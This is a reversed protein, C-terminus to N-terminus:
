FEFVSFSADNPSSMQSKTGPWIMRELDTDGDPVSPADDTLM